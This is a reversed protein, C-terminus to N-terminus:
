GRQDLITYGFVRRRIPERSPPPCTKDTAPTLERADSAETSLKWVARGILAAVLTATIMDLRADLISLEDIAGLLQESASSAAGSTLEAAPSGTQGAFQSTVAGPLWAGDGGTQNVDLSPSHFENGSREHGAPTPLPETTGASVEFAQFASHISEIKAPIELLADIAAASLSGDSSTEAIPHRQLVIGEDDTTAGAKAAGLVDPRAPKKVDGLGAPALSPLIPEKGAPKNPVYNLTSLMDLVDHSESKEGPLETPSVPGSQLDLPKGIDIQDGDTSSGPLTSYSDDDPMSPYSPVNESPLTPWSPTPSNSRTVGESPYSEPGAGRGLSRAPSGAIDDADGSWAASDAGSTVAPRYDDAIFPITPPALSMLCRSELSEFQVGSYRARQQPVSRARGAIRRWYTQFFALMM